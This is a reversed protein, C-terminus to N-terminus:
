IGEVRMHADKTYNVSQYLKKFRSVLEGCSTVPMLVQSIAFKFLADAAPDLLLHPVVRENLSLHHM